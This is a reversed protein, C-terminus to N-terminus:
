TLSMIKKAEKNLEFDQRLGMKGPNMIGDPDCADKIGQWITLMNGLQKKHWEQKFFGISHHHSMAGGIKITTESLKKWVKMYKAKTKELNDAYGLFSFYINNGNLYSHSFHAMIFVDNKVVNRITHYLTPLKDWTTSVECTDLFAGERFVSPTKYSVDYRHEWWYEAPEPGLVKMKNKNALKEIYDVQPEILEKEGEFTYLLLCGPRIFKMALDITRNSIPATQLLAKLGTGSKIKNLIEKIPSTKKEKDSKVDAVDEEDIEKEPSGIIMTDLEDYLRVAAPKLGVRVVQRMFDIGENIDKAKLAFFVRDKPYPHIKFTIQSIIGLTGESGILIENFDPGMASRPTEVTNITKGNGLHIRLSIVMDEINGYYTSLQGAARTAVWGGVTSCYISSPFHGLTYGHRNLYEEFLQGNMGAQVTCTLNTENLKIIQDLKKLDCTIGGSVPIAGGCVGSGGAYPVIPTKKKRALEILEIIENENEPWVVYDPPFPIENQDEYAFMMPWLDKGYVRRENSHSSTDIARDDFINQLENLISESEQVKTQDSM